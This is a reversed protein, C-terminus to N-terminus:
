LAVSSKVDLWGTVEHLGPSLAHPKGRLKGNGLGVEVLLLQVRVVGFVMQQQMVERHTPGLGAGIVERVSPARGNVLDPWWSINKGKRSFDNIQRSPM